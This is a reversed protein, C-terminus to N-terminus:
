EFMTGLYGSVAGLALTVIGLVLNITVFLRIQAIAKGAADLDQAAAAGRLRRYPAAVIHAFLLMMVLGLGTMAHVYPGVAAFGGRWALMVIGSVLIAVISAGVWPFFRRFVALMLAVRQRGDLIEAAAPRLCLLTFFMGGVWIVSGLVHFILAISM